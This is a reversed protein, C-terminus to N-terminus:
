AKGLERLTTGIVRLNETRMEDYERSILIGGAGATFASVIAARLSAPHSGHARGTAPHPVDVGIGPIVPCKGQVVEVIRRTEIGVYEADMAGENLQDLKPQRRPDYGRLAYYMELSQQLTLEALPGRKLEELHWARLRPALVEHYLIPKIFDCYPVCDEYSWQALFLADWSTNQHDFHRGVQATPQAKRVIAHTRRGQEELALRWQYDWALVEPFRMLVRLVNTFVGDVPAAGGSRLKTILAHLETFGQRARGVNIGEGRARAECHPCFCFPATGKWLLSSLPGSREAGWQFGALPYASTTDAVLADWFGIWEPHNRCPQASPKGHIDVAMAREHHAVRGALDRAGPELIRAYLNIGRRRLPEAVEAFLDRGGYEEDAAAPLVRLSTNKFVADNHRLWVRTIKRRREDRIPVGHNALLEPARNHAAYYSHSYLFVANARCTSQVHDLCRDLGEDLLSHGAIQLGILPPMPAAVAQTLPLVVSAATTKLFARRTQTVSM